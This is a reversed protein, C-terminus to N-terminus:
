ESFVRTRVIWADPYGKNKIKKLHAEAKKRNSFDGVYLKYFPQEASLFVPLSTKSEVTKKEQRVTEVRSSALLQIRFRSASAEEEKNNNGRKDSVALVSVENESLSVEKGQNLTDLFTLQAEKKERSQETVTEPKSEAPKAKAHHAASVCGMMVPLVASILLIRKM